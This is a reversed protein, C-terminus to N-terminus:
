GIVRLWRAFLWIPLVTYCSETSFSGRGLHDKGAHNEPSTNVVPGRNTIIFRALTHKLLRKGETACVAPIAV